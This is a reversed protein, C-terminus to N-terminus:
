EGNARRLEKKYHRIMDSKHPGDELIDIDM